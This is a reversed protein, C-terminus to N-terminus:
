RVGGLKGEEVLTALVDMIIRGGLLATIDSVDYPPVIIASSYPFNASLRQYLFVAELRGCPIVGVIHTQWKM